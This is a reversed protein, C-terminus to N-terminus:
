LGAKRRVLPRGTGSQISGAGLVRGLTKAWGVHPAKEGGKQERQEGGGGGRLLCFRAIRQRGEVVEGFAGFFASAL